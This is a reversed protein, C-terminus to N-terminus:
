ISCRNPIGRTITASVPGDALAGLSRVNRQAMDGYGDHWADAGLDTLAECLPHSGDNQNHSLFVDHKLFRHGTKERPLRQLPDNSPRKKGSSM